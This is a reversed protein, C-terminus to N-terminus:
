LYLRCLMHLGCRSCRCCQCGLHVLGRRNGGHWSNLPVDWCWHRCCGMGCRHLWLSRATGAHCWSAQDLFDLFQWGLSDLSRTRTMCWQMYGWDIITTTLDGDIMNESLPIQIIVWKTECISGETLQDWKTSCIYISKGAEWLVHWRPRKCFPSHLYTVTMFLQTGLEIFRWWKVVVNANSNIGCNVYDTECYYDLHEVNIKGIHACVYSNDIYFSYFKVEGTLCRNVM